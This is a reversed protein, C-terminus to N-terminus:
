LVQSHNTANKSSEPPQPKMGSDRSRSSARPWPRELAATSLTVAIWTRIKPGRSPAKFPTGRPCCEFDKRLERVVITTIDLDATM